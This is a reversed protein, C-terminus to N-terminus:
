ISLGSAEERRCRRAIREKVAAAAAITPKLPLVKGANAAEEGSAM